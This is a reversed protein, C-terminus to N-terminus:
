RVMERSKSGHTFLDSAAAAASFEQIAQTCVITPGAVKPIEDAIMRGQNDVPIREARDRGLGLM